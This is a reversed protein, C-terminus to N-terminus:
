WRDLGFTGSISGDAGDNRSVMATRRNFFGHPAGAYSVLTVDNGLAKSRRTFEEVSAIPVVSDARGHFIITPPQNEQLHHIPSIRVPDIGTRQKMGALRKEMNQIEPAGNLTALMVAPNFLAMANPVSSVNADDGNADLGSVVGTCCALHGGASGGASCIQDPIVGLMKANARVWRVASKADEVCSVAKVGHRSAVRYDCTVAVVGRSRLYRCQDAFQVPTGSRWGGGFFFVVAPREDQANRQPQFVWAKLEVDDVTKYTYETADDFTPPYSWPRQGVALHVLTLFFLGFVASQFLTSRM